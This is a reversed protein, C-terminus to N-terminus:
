IKTTSLSLRDAKNAERIKAIKLIRKKPDQLKARTEM